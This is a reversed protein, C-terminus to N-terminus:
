LSSIGEYVKKLAMSVKEKTDEFKNEIPRKTVEDMYLSRNLEVQICHQGIDPQGYTQTIRGGKYPWNMKVEFGVSKYSEVVLEAYSSSCSKGDQDSIVVQARNEGPDRHFVTGLSPMSHGDLQYVKQNNNLLEGYQKTVREHFPNFCNKVLAEHLELTMPSGMLSQGNKTKVWHFGDSHTGSKNASGVVSDEDVDEPLRNLDVVYRHWRTKIFPIALDKCKQEYFQDVYRDVDSMLTPEDHKALWTVSDPIEEGSHPVTVFFPIM